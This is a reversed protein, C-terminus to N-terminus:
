CQVLLVQPSIMGLCPQIKLIVAIQNNQRLQPPAEALIDHKVVHSNEDTVACTSKVIRNGVM